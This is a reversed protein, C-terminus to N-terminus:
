RADGNVNAEAAVLKGKESAFMQGPKFGPVALSKEKLRRAIDAPVRVQGDDSFYDAKGKTM